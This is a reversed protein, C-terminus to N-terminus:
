LPRVAEGLPTARIDPLTDASVRRHRCRRTQREFARPNSPRRLRTRQRSARNPPPRRHLGRPRSTTRCRRSVSRPEKSNTPRSPTAPLNKKTRGPNGPLPVWRDFTPSSIGTVSAGNEPFPLQVTSRFPVAVAVVPGAAPKTAHVSKRLLRSRLAKKELRSHGPPVPAQQSAHPLRSCAASPRTMTTTTDSPDKRQRGTETTRESETELPQALSPCGRVATGAANRAQRTERFEGFFWFLLGQVEYPDSWGARLLEALAVTSWIM